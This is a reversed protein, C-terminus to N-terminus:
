DWHEDMYTTNRLRDFHYLLFEEEDMYIRLMCNKKELFEELFDRIIDFTNERKCVEDFGDLYIRTLPIRLCANIMIHLDNTTYENAYPRINIYMNEINNNDINKLCKIALHRHCFPIYALYKINSVTSITNSTFIYKITPDSLIKLLQIEKQEIYEMENKMKIIIALIDHSFM